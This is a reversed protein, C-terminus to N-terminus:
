LILIVQKMSAPRIVLRKRKLARLIVETGVSMKETVEGFSKQMNRIGIMTTSSM